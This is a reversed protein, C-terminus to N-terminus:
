RGGGDAVVLSVTVVKTRAARDHLLGRASCAGFFFLFSAMGWLVGKIVARLLAHWLRVQTSGGREPLVRLNTLLKGPTAGALWVGVFNLAVFVFYFEWMHAGTFSEIQRSLLRHRELSLDLGFISWLFSILM